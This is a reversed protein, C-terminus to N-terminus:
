RLIVVNRARRNRMIKRRTIACQSFNRRASKAAAL